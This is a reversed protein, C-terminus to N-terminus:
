TQWRKIENKKEEQIENDSTIRECSKPFLGDKGKFNHHQWPAINLLSVFNSKTLQWGTVYSDTTQTFESVRSFNACKGAVYRLATRWFEVIRLM